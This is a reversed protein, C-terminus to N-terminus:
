GLEAQVPQFSRDIARQGVTTRPPGAIAMPGAVRLNRGTRPTGHLVARDTDSGLFRACVMWIGNRQFLPCPRMSVAAAREHGVSLGPWVSAILFYPDAVHHGAVLWAEGTGPSTLWVAPRGLIDSRREGSAPAIAVATADIRMTM